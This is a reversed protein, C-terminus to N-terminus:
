VLVVPDNISKSESMRTKAGPSDKIVKNEFIISKSSDRQLMFEDAFESLGEKKKPRRKDKRFKRVNEPRREFQAQQAIQQM